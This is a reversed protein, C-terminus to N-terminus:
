NSSKDNDSSELDVNREKQLLRLKFFKQYEHKQLATAPLYHGGTHTIVIPEEFCESLSKSM